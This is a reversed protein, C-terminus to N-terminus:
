LFFNLKEASIAHQSGVDLLTNTSVGECCIAGLITSCDSISESDRFEYCWGRIPFLQQNNAELTYAHLQLAICTKAGSPFVFRLSRLSIQVVDVRFFGSPNKAEIL